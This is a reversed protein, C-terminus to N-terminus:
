KKRDLGWMLLAQEFNFDIDKKMKCLIKLLDNLNKKYIEDEYVSSPVFLRFIDIKLASALKILTKDSVWSRCGEIDKIMNSSIGTKEALKEQSLGLLERHKKINQSLVKRIDVTEKGM